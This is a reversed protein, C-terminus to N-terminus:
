RVFGGPPFACMKESLEWLRRAVDADLSYASPSKPKGHLWYIENAEQISPDCVLFVIGKASEDASIGGRRRISWIWRSIVSDSKSGIDTNVLGPDAAFARVTRDVRRNFEATFLVNALKTQKYAQLGNYRRRLQIDDWRLRTHYHSGSSVNVVRSVTSAKLLPLLEHTLLFGALYNVAWQMEFGESTLSLWYRFTGANNVLADIKKHGAQGVIQRIQQAANRVASQESLDATLCVARADPSLSLLSSQTRECREVSRGVGIVFAGRRVLQEATALGIGATVGTVVITKEALTPEM